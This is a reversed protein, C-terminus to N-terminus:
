VNKPPLGETCIGPIRVYLVLVLLDPGSTRIICVGCTDVKGEVRYVVVYFGISSPTRAQSAFIMGYIYRVQLHKM